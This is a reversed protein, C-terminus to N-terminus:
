FPVITNKYMYGPKCDKYLCVLGNTKDFDNIFCGSCDCINNYLGDYNNKILWEQLIEKINKEKPNIEETNLDVNVIFMNKNKDYIFDYNKTKTHYINFKKLFSRSTILRFRSNKYFKYCSETKKNIPKIGICKKEKEFYLEAYKYKNLMYKKSAEANFGMQGQPYIVFKQNNTEFKKCPKKNIFKEFNMEKLGKM